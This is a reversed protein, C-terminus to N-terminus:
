VRIRGADTAVRPWEREIDVLTAVRIEDLPVEDIEPLLVLSSQEGKAAKIAREAQKWDISLERRQGPFVIRDTLVAPLLDLSEGDRCQASSRTSIRFRM